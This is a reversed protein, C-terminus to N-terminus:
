TYKALAWCEEVVGRSVLLSPGQPLSILLEMEKAGSSMPLIGQGGKCTSPDLSQARIHFIPPLLSHRKWSQGSVGEM